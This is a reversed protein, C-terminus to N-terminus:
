KRDLVITVPTGRRILVELEELDEKLMAIGHPPRNPDPTSAADEGEESEVDIEPNGAESDEEVGYLVYGRRSLFIWPSGQGASKRSRTAPKGDAWFSKASVKANVRSARTKPLDASGIPYQTFFGHGDHVVVRERPLDITITFDLKPVVLKDGPRLRTSELANVRLIADTSSRLKRAISSVADGRKVTYESKRPSLEKEFFLQTNIEGLLDRLDRTVPSRPSTTLARVLIDRAEPLRGDDALQRAEKLKAVNPHVYAVWPVRPSERPLFVLRGLHMAGGIIAAALLLATLKQWTTM